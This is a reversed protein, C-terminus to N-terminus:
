VPLYPISIPINDDQKSLGMEHSLGLLSEPASLWSSMSWTWGLGPSITYINSYQRGTQIFGNRSRPSFSSIHTGTPAYCMQVSKCSLLSLYNSCCKNWPAPVLFQNPWHSKQACGAQIWWAGDADWVFPLSSSGISHESVSLRVRANWCASPHSRRGHFILIDSQFLYRTLVSIEKARSDQKAFLTTNFTGDNDFFWVNRPNIGRSSGLNQVM